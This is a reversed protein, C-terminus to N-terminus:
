FMVKSNGTSPFHLSHFPKEWQVLLQPVPAWTLFRKQLLGAGDAPPFSHVPGEDSDLFQLVFVHAPILMAHQIM